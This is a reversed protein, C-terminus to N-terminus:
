KNVPSNSSVYLDYTERFMRDISYSELVREQANKGCKKSLEPDNILHVIAKAIEEPSKPPVVLGTVENEILEANPLISTTVIPKGAAMAELISISLGEWLSPGAFIDIAVLFSPIERVFGLLRVHDSIDLSKILNELDHFDPGTGALLLTFPKGPIMSKVYPISQILSKNDKQSALRGTNGILIHDDSFGLTKRMTEKSGDQTANLLPQPDIGNCIVKMKNLPAMHYKKGQQYTAHSVCIAKTSILSALYELPTYVIREKLGSFETVTWGAQHHLIVPTGMLFASLRGLFGPTATYTHIVDYQEKKILSCLQSFAKIDSAPDINRPILIDHIIRAGKIKKVENMMSPETSLIDVQWGKSILFECWRIVLYTGGGYPSNGGIQLTKMIIAEKVM